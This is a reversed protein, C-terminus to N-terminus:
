LILFGIRFPLVESKIYPIALNGAERLIGTLNNLASHVYNENLICFCDSHRLVSCLLLYDGQAYSRHHALSIRHCDLTLDFDLLPPHYKDPTLLPSSSGSSSIRINSFVSDLLESNIILTIANIL